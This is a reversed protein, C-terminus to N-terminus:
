SLRRRIDVAVLGLLLILLSSPEPVSAAATKSEGFNASLALFDPFEVQGNGDFDGDAWGGKGGFGASLALFDPFDVNGDLNADGVYTNAYATGNIWLQRDADDVVEDRNNDFNYQYAGNRIIETLM